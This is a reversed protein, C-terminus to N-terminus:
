ASGMCTQFMMTMFGSNPAQLEYKATPNKSYLQMQVNQDFPILNFGSDNILVSFKIFNDEITSKKFSNKCKIKIM